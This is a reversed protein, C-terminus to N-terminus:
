AIHRRGSDQWAERVLEAGWFALPGEAYQRVLQWTLRRLRPNRLIVFATGVATAALIVNATTEAQQRTM